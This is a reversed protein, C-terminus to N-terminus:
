ESEVGRYLISKTNLKAVEVNELVKFNPSIVNVRKAGAEVMNSILKSPNIDRGLRKGQWQIFAEVSEEVRKSIETIFPKDTDRIWYEVKLDYKVISPAVVEVKDTLPRIYRINLAEDIERLVENGPISGDTFLPVIQSVGPSPSWVEVDGINPNVRKTWYRYAGDPGATSFKEPAEHVRQRYSDDLERDLGGSSVTINEVSQFYPFVDIIINVYGPLVGNGVLGPEVAEAIVDVLTEGSKVEFDELTQFIKDDATKVRTGKPIINVYNLETSQVFRLTTQASHKDFRVEDMFAAMHDLHDGRSYALLNMKGTDNIHERDQIILHLMTKLMIAEPSAPYLPKGLEKSLGRIADDELQQVDVEIFEIDKLDFNSM